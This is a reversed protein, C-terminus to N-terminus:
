KERRGRRRTASEAAGVPGRGMSKLATNASRDAARMAPLRGAHAVSSSLTTTPANHDACAWSAWRVVCGSHKPRSTAMAHAAGRAGAVSCVSALLAHTKVSGQFCCAGWVSSAEAVGRCGADQDVGERCAGAQALRRQVAKTRGPEEGSTSCGWIIRERKHGEGRGWVCAGEVHEEGTVALEGLGPGVRVVHEGARYPRCGWQGSHHGRRLHQSRLARNSFSCEHLPDPDADGQGSALRDRSVGREDPLMAEPDRCHLGM